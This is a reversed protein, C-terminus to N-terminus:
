PYKKLFGEALGKQQDNNLTLAKKWEGQADAIRGAGLYAEALTEHAIPDNADNDIASRCMTVAENWSKQHLYADAMIEYLNKTGAPYMKMMNDGYINLAAAGTTIVQEYQGATSLVDILNAYTTRSIDGFRIASQYEAIAEGYNRQLQSSMALDRYAKAYTPALVLTTQLERKAEELNNRSRLVESLYFHAEPFDPNLRLAERFQTEAQDLDGTTSLLRGLHYRVSASEPLLAAARQYEALADKTNKTYEQVLALEFHVWGDDPHLALSANQRAIFDSLIKAQLEPYGSSKLEPAVSLVGDADLTPDASAMHAFKDLKAPDDNWKPQYMELAWSYTETKDRSLALATQLAHDALASHSNFTAATALRQWALAFAPDLQVARRAAAEWQPYLTELVQTQAPSLASYVRGQRRDGAAEGLTRARILWGEPDHPSDKTMREAAQLAPRHDQTFRYRYAEAVALTCNNPYRATLASLQASYALLVSDNHQAIVGWVLPNNGAQTLLTQVAEHYHPTIAGVTRDINILGAAPNHTAIAELKAQQSETRVTKQWRTQGLLQLADPTLDMSAPLSADSIGLHRTLMRAMQPLKSAIQAQTGTLTIAAGVPAGSPVQLLRYTLILHPEAGRLTGGAAHTVGLIPALNRAEAASLQLDQRGLETRARDLDGWLPTKGLQPQGGVIVQLWCACGTGFRGAASDASAAAPECIVIGPGSETPLLNNQAKWIPKVAPAASVIPAASLSSVGSLGAFFLLFLAAFLKM